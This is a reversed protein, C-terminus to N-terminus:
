RRRYAKIFFPPNCIEANPNGSEGFVEVVEFNTEIWNGLTQYFDRGFAVSGFERMPRNVIFIYRVNDRQMASIAEFEDQESLFAPLLVQHRLDIKRATLFGLDNGEPLVAIFEGPTTNSVIFKQAQDLAPGTHQEVFVTGRPAEIRYVYKSRYRYGFSFGVGVVAAVCITRTIFKSRAYSIEDGSWKRVANPLMVLLGFFILGLSTPLYFSGAFGGSPVRLILRTLIAISFVAIVFLAGNDDPDSVAASNNNVRSRRRWEVFIIGLLFFPIARLPSGDWQNIFFYLVIGVMGSSIAFLIFSKKRLKGTRDSLWIILSVIAASLFAAGVMQIFSGVPADFGSRFRNYFVLSEPINTYFLHCDNILVNPDIKAFLVVFVPIVIALASIGSLFLDTFLRRFDARHLYVVYAFVTVAGAFGFEQKALAAFGIFIGAIILERKKRTEWHRLVFLLSALAFVAAHLAGFSYPLILNGAPKFVCLVLIFSVAIATEAAPMLRIFIRYCLLLLIGSFVIGSAALTDIHIGFLWYLGANFYPSFPTYTYHIDRYLIEGNLLRLPLDTERGIDVILSTWRRWSVFLMAFFMLMPMMQPRFSSKLDAIIM